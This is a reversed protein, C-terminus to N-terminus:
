DSTRGVSRVKVQRTHQLHLTVQRIEAEGAVLLGQVSLELPDLEALFPLLLLAITDFGSATRIKKM